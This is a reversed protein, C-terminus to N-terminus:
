SINVGSKSSCARSAQNAVQGRHEFHELAWREAVLDVAVVMRQLGRSSRHAVALSDVQDHAGQQVVDSVREGRFIVAISGCRQEGRIDIFFGMPHDLVVANELPVVVEM